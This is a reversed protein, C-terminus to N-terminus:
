GTVAKEVPFKQYYFSVLHMNELFAKQRDQLESLLFVMNGLMAFLFLFRSRNAPTLFYWFLMMQNSQGLMEMSQM